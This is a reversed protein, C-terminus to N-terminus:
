EIKDVFKFIEEENGVMYALNKKLEQKISPTLYKSWEPKDEYRLFAFLALAYAWEDYKLYGGGYSWRDIQQRFQLSANATFIGFGFFVTALDTLHEDNEAVKNEGLLKIHCLEHAITAVISIPNDLYNSNISVEYKGRKNKGHYLGATGPTDPDNELFIPSMGSNLEVLGERYFDVEVDNSQIQMNEAIIKLLELVDDKSSTWQFPFDQEIPLFVKRQDLTPVPFTDLLWLMNNEFYKRKEYDLPEYIKKARFFNKLMM